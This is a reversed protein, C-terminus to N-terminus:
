VASKILDELSNLRRAVLAMLILNKIESTSRRRAIAEDADKSAAYAMAEEPHLDDGVFFEMSQQEELTRLYYVIYVKDKPYHISGDGVAFVMNIMCHQGSSLKGQIHLYLLEKHTNEIRRSRFQSGPLSESPPWVEFVLPPSDYKGFLQCSQSCFKLVANNDKRITFGFSSPKLCVECLDKCYWCPEECKVDYNPLDSYNFMFIVTFNFVYCCIYGHM